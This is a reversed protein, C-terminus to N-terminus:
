ESAPGRGTQHQRRRSWAGPELFERAKGIEAARGFFVAADKKEFAMMGPYPPSRTPDWAFVDRPDLGCAKLGAALRRYGEDRNV